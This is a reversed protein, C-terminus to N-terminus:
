RCTGWAGSTCAQGLGISDGTGLVQEKGWVRRVRRHLRQGGSQQAAAQPRPKRGGERGRLGSGHGPRNTRGRLMETQQERERGVTTVQELGEDGRVLTVVPTM